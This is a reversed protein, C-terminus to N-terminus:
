LGMANLVELCNQRMNWCGHKEHQEITLDFAIALGHKAILKKDIWAGIGHSGKIKYIMDYTKEKVTVTVKNDTTATIM